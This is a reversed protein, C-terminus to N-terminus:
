CGELLPLRTLAEINNDVATTSIGIREALERKSIRSKGQAHSM